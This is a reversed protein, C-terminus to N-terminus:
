APQWRAPRAPLELVAREPARATAAISAPRSAVPAADRASARNSSAETRTADLDSTDVSAAAITTAAAPSAPVSSAAQPLTGHAFATTFFAGFLAIRWVFERAAPSRSVRVSDFLWAGCLLLTSHVLYTAFWTLITEAM